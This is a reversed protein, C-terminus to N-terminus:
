RIAKPARFTKEPAERYVHRCVCSNDNQGHAFGFLFFGAGQELGTMIEAMAVFTQNLRLQISGWKL